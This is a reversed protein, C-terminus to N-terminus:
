LAFPGVETGSPYKWRLRSGCVNRSETNSDRTARDCLLVVRGSLIPTAKIAIQRLTQANYPTDALEVLCCSRGETVRLSVTHMRLAQSHLRFATVHNSPGEPLHRLLGDSVVGFLESVGRWIIRFAVILTNWLCSEADFTAPANIFRVMMVRNSVATTGRKAWVFLMSVRSINFSSSSNPRAIILFSGSAIPRSSASSQIMMSGSPPM